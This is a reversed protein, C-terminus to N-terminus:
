RNFNFVHVELLVCCSVKINSTCGFCLNTLTTSSSELLSIEIGEKTVTFLARSSRLSSFCCPPFPKLDTHPQSLSTTPLLVFLHSSPLQPPPFVIAVKNPLHILLLPSLISALTSSSM